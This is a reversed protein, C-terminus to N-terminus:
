EETVTLVIQIAELMQRKTAIACQVDHASVADIILQKLKDDSNFCWDGSEDARRSFEIMADQALSIADLHENCVGMEALLYAVNISSLLIAWSKESAHPSLM